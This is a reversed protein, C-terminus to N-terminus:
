QFVVTFFVFTVLKPPKELTRYDTFKQVDKKIGDLSNSFNRDNLDLTKSYIWDLLGSVLSVYDDQMREIDLM